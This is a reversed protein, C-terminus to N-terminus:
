QGEAAKAAKAGGAIYQWGTVVTLAFGTWLMSTAIWHANDAIPPVLAFAIAWLQVFTKWKALKTAPVSVGLKGMRSRYGSILVERAAIVVVPFWHFQGSAVLAFMGGLALVKDALPDLWAGLLTSGQLRALYGDVFDTIGITFGILFTWWGPGTNAVMVLWFPTAVIRAATLLNAPTLIATPGYKPAPTAAAAAADTMFSSGVPWRRGLGANSRSGDPGPSLSCYGCMAVPDPDFFSSAGHAGVVGSAIALGLGAGGNEPSRADDGKVFPESARGIFEAAFGPGEDVVALIISEEASGPDGSRDLTVNVCSGRPAHRIANELLNRV